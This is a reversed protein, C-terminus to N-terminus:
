RVILKSVRDGVRLVYVGAELVFESATNELVMKGSISYVNITADEDVNLVRVENGAVVCAVVDSEVEDVSSEDPEPDPEPDPDPDPDPTVSEDKGDWGLPRIRVAYAGEWNGSVIEPAVELISGGSKWWGVTKSADVIMYDGADNMEGLTWKDYYTYTDTNESTQNSYGGQMWPAANDATAEVPITQLKLDNELMVGDVTNGNLYAKNYIYFGNELDGVFCYLFKDEPNAYDPASWSIGLAKNLGNPTFHYYAGDTLWQIYFWKANTGTDESFQIGYDDVGPEPEPEAEPEKGDWGLPQFRLAYAGEWTLVDGVELQSAGNKWWGLSKDATVMMYRGLANVDGMVWTDHYTYNESNETQTQSFGGLMWNAGNPLTRLKLDATLTVEGVTKGALYAKNYIAFGDETGVFCYLFKDAPAAYDPNAWQIGLPSDLADPAFCKFGDKDDVYWQIYYWHAGEGTDTSLQFPLEARLFLCSAMMALGM